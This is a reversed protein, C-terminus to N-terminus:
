VHLKLHFCLAVCIHSVLVICVCVPSQL